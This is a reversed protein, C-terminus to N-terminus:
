LSLEMLDGLAVIYIELARLLKKLSFGENAGHIAGVFAPFREEEEEIGFSVANPLHRAYTGGGMVFPVASNGTVDNYASLLAHIPASDASIYFPPDTIFVELSAGADAAKVRLTAALRDASTSTPFRCDLTQTLVGHEMSIMGGIITLPSFIGDSSDIGLRSGDPAAFLDHLLALYDREAGHVLHNDLLYSAILGIANVTGEPASAHGAKGCADLRVGDACESLTLGAPATPLSAAFTANLLAFARDPVVNHAVGGELHRLFGGTLDPSVFNAHFLGKEGNCVPFSGDPTFTFDPASHGALYLPIDSMGSEEDSGLLVEIGHRPATGTEKALDAFFKAAYLALVAPGKDDAVGRGILYGEKELLSFPPSDWGNGEPVVDLHAIIGVTQAGSGPVCAVCMADAC